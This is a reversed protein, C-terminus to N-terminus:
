LNDVGIWKGEFYFPYRWVNSLNAWYYPLGCKECVPTYPIVWDKDFIVQNGHPCNKDLEIEVIQLQDWVNKMIHFSIDDANEMGMEQLIEKNQWLQYNNRIKRGFSHFYQILKDEKTHKILIKEKIDMSGMLDDVIEAVTHLM